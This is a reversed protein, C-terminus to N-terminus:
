VLRDESVQNIIENTYTNIIENEKEASFVRHIMYTNWRRQAVDILSNVTFNQFIFTGLM